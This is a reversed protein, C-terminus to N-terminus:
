ALVGLVQAIVGEPLEVEVQRIQKLALQVSELAIGRQRLQRKMAILQDMPEADADLKLSYLGALHLLLRSLPATAGGGRHAQSSQTEARGSVQQCRLRIQVAAEQSGALQLAEALSILVSQRQAAQVSAVSAGEKQAQVFALAAQQQQKGVDPGPQITQLLAVGYRLWEQPDHSELPHADIVAQWDGREFAERSM